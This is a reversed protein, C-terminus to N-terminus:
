CFLITVDNHHRREIWVTLKHVVTFSVTLNYLHEHHLSVPHSRLFTSDCVCVCVCVCVSMCLCVYVHVCVCVCEHVEVEQHASHIYVVINTVANETKVGSGLLTM